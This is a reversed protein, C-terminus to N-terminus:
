ETTVSFYAIWIALSQFLLICRGAKRAIHKPELNSGIEEISIFLMSYIIGVV